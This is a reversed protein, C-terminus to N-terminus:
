EEVWEDVLLAMVHEDVYDGDLFQARRLTGELTFGVKEYSRIARPNNAYVHLDIRQLNLYHFGFRCITRVADTGYGQDWYPKGIFIGLTGTRNRVDLGRLTCNGILEGEVTELAFVIESHSARIQDLWELEAALPLPFPLTIGALVDPDNLLVQLRPLDDPELARLRVLRGELPPRVRRFDDHLDEAGM